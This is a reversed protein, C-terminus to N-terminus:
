RDAYIIIIIIVIFSILFSVEGTAFSTYKRARTLLTLWCCDWQANGSISTWIKIWKPLLKAYLQSPYKTPLCTILLLVGVVCKSLRLDNLYKMACDIIDGFESNTYNVSIYHRSNHLFDVLKSLHDVLLYDSAVSTERGERECISIIEDWFYKWEITIDMKEHTKKCLGKMVILLKIKMPFSIQDHRYARIM